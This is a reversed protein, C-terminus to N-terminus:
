HFTQKLRRVCGVFRTIVEGARMIIGAFACNRGAPFTPVPSNFHGPVAGAKRPESSPETPTFCIERVGHPNPRPAPTELSGAWLNRSLAHTAKLRFRQNRRPTALAHPFVTADPLYTGGRDRGLVYTLTITASMSDCPIFANASRM